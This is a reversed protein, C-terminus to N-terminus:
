ETRRGPHGHHRGPQQGLCTFMLLGTLSLLRFIPM